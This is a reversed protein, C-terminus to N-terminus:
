TLDVTTSHRAADTVVVMVEGASLRYVSRLEGAGGAVASDNDAAAAVDVDGWDCSLHRLVLAVVQVGNLHAAAMAEATCRLEGLGFALTPQPGAAEGIV